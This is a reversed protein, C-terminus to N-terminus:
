PVARIANIKVGENFGIPAISRIDWYGGAFSIRDLVTVDRTRSNSLVEFSASQAGQTQAAERQETGTGYYIGAYERCYEAWVKIPTNLADRTEAFREIVILHHRNGAKM